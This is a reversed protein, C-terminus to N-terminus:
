RCIVVQCKKCGLQMLYVRGTYHSVLTRHSVLLVVSLPVCVCVCVCVQGAHEQEAAATVAAVANAVAVENGEEEGRGDEVGNKAAALQQFVFSSFVAVDWGVLPRGKGIDQRHKKRTSELAAGLLRQDGTLRSTSSGGGGGGANGNSPAAAAAAAGTTADALKTSPPSLSNKKKKKNKKKKHKQKQQQQPKNGDHDNSSSKISSSSSSSSSGEHGGATTAPTPAATGEASSITTAALRRKKKGGHKTKGPASDGGALESPTTSRSRADGGGTKPDAAHTSAARDRKRKRKAANKEAKSKGKGSSSAPVENTMKVHTNHGRDYWVCPETAFFFLPSTVFYPLRFQNQVMRPVFIALFNGRRPHRVCTKKSSTPLAM